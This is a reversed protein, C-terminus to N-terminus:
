AKMGVKSEIKTVRKNIFFVENRVKHFNLDSIKADLSDVKSNLAKATHDLKTEVGNVRIDVEDIKKTLRIEIDRFGNATSIALEDVNTELNDVKKTLKNLKVDLSGIKVDLGVISGAITELTIKKKSTKVKVTTIIDRSL